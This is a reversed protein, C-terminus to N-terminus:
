DVQVIIAPVPGLLERHDHSVLQHGPRLMVAPHGRDSPEVEQEAGEVEQEGAEQPDDGDQHRALVQVVLQVHLHDM